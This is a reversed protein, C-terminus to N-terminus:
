CFLKHECSSLVLGRKGTGILVQLRLNTQDYLISSLKTVYTPNFGSREPVLPCGPERYVHSPIITDEVEIQNNEFTGESKVTFLLWFVFYTKPVPM